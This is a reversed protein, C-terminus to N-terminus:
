VHARGIKAAQQGAINAPHDDRKSEPLWNVTVLQRGEDRLMVALVDTRSELDYTSTRSLVDLRPVSGGIDLKLLLLEGSSTGVAILSSAEDTGLATVGGEVKLAEGVVARKAHDYVRLEDDSSVLYFGPVPAAIMPGGIWEGPLALLLEGSRADWVKPVGEPDLGMMNSGASSTLVIGDGAGFAIHEIRASLAKVLDSSCLQIGTVLACSTHRRRSAVCFCM